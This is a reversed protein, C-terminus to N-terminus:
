EGRRFKDWASLAIGSSELENLLDPTVRQKKKTKKKRTKKPPEMVSLARGLMEFFEEETKEKALKKAKRLIQKAKKKNM